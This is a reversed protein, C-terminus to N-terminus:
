ASSPAFRGVAVPSAFAGVTSASLSKPAITLTSVRETGLTDASRANPVSRTDVKVIAGFLKDADVAPASADGTAAPRKAEDDAYAPMVVLLALAATLVVQFAYRMARRPLFRSGM